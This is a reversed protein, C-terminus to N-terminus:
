GLQKDWCHPARICWGMERAVAIGLAAHPLCRILHPETGARSQETEDCRAATQRKSAPRCSGLAHHSFTM